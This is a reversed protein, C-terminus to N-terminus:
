VLWEQFMALQASAQQLRSLKKRLQDRKYAVEHTERMAEVTDSDAALAIVEDRIKSSLQDIMDYSITLPAYDVLRRNCM